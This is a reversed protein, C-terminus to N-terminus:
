VPPPAQAAEAARKAKHRALMELKKIIEIKAQMADEDADTGHLARIAAVRPGHLKLLSLGLANSVERLTTKEGSPSIVERDQGNLARDLLEAELRAYGLELAEDWADRFKKDKKRTAYLGSPAMGLTALAGRVSCFDMLLNLFEQKTASDWARPPKKTRVPRVCGDADGAMIDAMTM